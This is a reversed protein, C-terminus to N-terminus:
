GRQGRAYAVARELTMMRGEAWASAFAEASLAARVTEKDENQEEQGFSLASAGISERLAEVAALLRAAREPEEASALGAFGELAYAIFHKDGLTEFLSLCETLLARAQALDGQKQAVKGLTGLSNALGHTDGIERKLAVSEELLAQAAAYDGRNVAISAINNLLAAVAWRNDLERYAALSERYLREAEAYDGQDYAVVALGWLASAIGGKDGLARRIALSEVYCAYAAQNDGQSMALGGAGILARARVEKATGQGRKLARGLWERGERIYGHVDWFHHLAGALRVGAEADGREEQSWHLAARLNDHETELRELWVAQEGGRMMTQAKEALATFYELHRGRLAEDEGREALKELAYQRVTELLRYRAQGGREEYIVLSKDVLSTLLDLVEWYEVRVEGRGGGEYPPPSVRVGTGEGVSRSLPSQLPAAQQARIAGEGQSPSPQPPTLSSPAVAEAAELTWGGSFVALRCLLAREKADLLDYSWDILARLTQQRPLATRSGGTLLRFRDDLRAEIQEVPIARVRAAALEIALPIGDLRRCVQAVAPANAPSLAFSPAVALAREVFLRVAEYQGLAAETVAQDPDPLSLTPVRFLTEGAIGLGERSSALLRLYPCGRLLGEALHACAPLLHECNDLALLLAKPRLYDTLTQLLPRGSEEGLGFVAAVAQPVLAPDALSALEVLWVGDPYEDLVDAAVQLALRTKGSGGAGTLTLLRTTSLLRRVQEMEKERGIFSTLQIPLNHSFAELSRLPPFDAPLAPHLLQFISEPHQLDKLRHQGLDRLTVGVPLASRVVAETASSLLTQGGHAAGLLRAIRNLTPGFYDQDRREATGTHLAMRVRMPGTEGWPEAHLARQADLAANLADPAAEFVVCFADGLTKFVQGGRAEVAQRLLADHRALAARMAEPHQEWLRTSGEIDTFLFTRAGDQLSM